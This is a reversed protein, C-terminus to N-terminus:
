KGPSSDIARNRSHSVIAMVICFLGMIGGLINIEGIRVYQIAAAAFALAAAILWLLYYRKAIM